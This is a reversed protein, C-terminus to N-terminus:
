FWPGGQFIFDMDLKIDFVTLFYGNKYHTISVEDRSKWTHYVWNEIMNVTIRSEIFKYTLNHTEIMEITNQVQWSQLTVM